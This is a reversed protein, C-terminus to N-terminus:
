STSATAPPAVAPAGINDSRLAIGMVALLRDVQEPLPGRPEVRMAENATSIATSLPVSADMDLEWKIREVKSPLSM